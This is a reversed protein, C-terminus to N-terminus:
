TAQQHGTDSTSSRLGGLRRQAFADLEAQDYIPFRGDLRFRPGSSGISAIKALTAMSLTVGHIEALYESAVKRRMHSPWRRETAETTAQNM